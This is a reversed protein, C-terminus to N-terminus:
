CTVLRLCEDLISDFDRPRFGLIQRALGSDYFQFRSACYHTQYTISPHWNLLKGCPELLIAALGTVAPSVRVFRRHLGMIKAAREALARFTLNEGGLIYRHGRAGKKIASVIGDVVDAVHVVCLGGAFYPVLSARRVARVIEAGRYGIGSPGKLSAPNVIVADLDLAVEQMVIEEARRKSLHYTLGSNELNFPFKEDAPWRPDTPIGVAAVSSVHVLRRVGEMRCGQAVHRTGDVNVKMKLHRDGDLKAACHVVWEQDRVARRVSERDMIDGFMWEVPLGDLTALNSSARCLVRVKHGDAMMRRCLHSGLFGTAGTILVRM